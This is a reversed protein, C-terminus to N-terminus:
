LVGVALSEGQSGQLIGTPDRHSGHLIGAPDRYSGQPIGTPARYSGQPIPNHVVEKRATSNHIHGGGM